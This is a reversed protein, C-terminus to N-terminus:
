MALWRGSASKRPDFHMAGADSPHQQIDLAQLQVVHPDAIVIRDLHDALLQRWAAQILHQHQKGIGPVLFTVM